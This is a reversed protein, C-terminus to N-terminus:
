GSSLGLVSPSQRGGASLQEGWGRTYVPTGAPEPCRLLFSRGPGGQGRNLSFPCRRPHSEGHQRSPSPRDAARLDRAPGASGCLHARKPLRLGVVTQLLDQDWGSGDSLTQHVPGRRRHSCVSAAATNASSQHASCLCPVPEVAGGTSDPERPRCTELLDAAPLPLGVRLRRESDPWTQATEHWWRRPGQGAGRM